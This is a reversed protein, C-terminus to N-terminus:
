RAAVAAGGDQWGGGLARFTAVAARAAETRAQARADSAALLREDTQLLEVLSLVGKEYAAATSQRAADLAIVGQALADAQETRRLLDSMANEVDATARLAAQRYAALAEARGGEAQAIQAEIRGFDFLRWRLGLAAAGQSAGSTFLNGGSISTASGAMTSLSLKPYYEAVAVGIRAHAAALRREAAILDPRRRLLEGPTGSAILAPAQPIDRPAALEVRYTGPAAGLLVDLANMASELGTQLVPVAARAAALAGQVQRVEREPALGKGARLELMALLQQQTQVQRNAVYLRAQLGCVSIYTDATQAAVALRTAALGAASAGYDARAAERERRLGGFLDLEWGVGANVEYASGYRDFGPQADLVRGLPTEVSQYARAAQGTVAGSPLLAADANGLAARAQTVRAVAQALDLNQALAVAVLRDLQPDSFSRWWTEGEIAANAATVGTAGTAATATAAGDGQAARQDLAAQGLYQGPMPLVPQAYDPGVACGALLTAVVTTLAAARARPNAAVGSTRARSTRTPEPLM